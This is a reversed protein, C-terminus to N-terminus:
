LVYPDNETHIIAKFTQETLGYVHKYTILLICTLTYVTEKM